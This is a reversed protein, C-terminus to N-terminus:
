KKLRLDDGAFELVDCGGLLRSAIKEGYKRFIDKDETLNSTFICPNNNINRTNIINYLVSQGYPTLYETGLDDLIFLDCGIIDNLIDQVNHRNREIQEFLSQSSAYMVVFGNKVCVDAIACSLHTKGLGSYGLMLLSKRNRHFKEAYKKCYNLIDTMQERPSIGNGAATDSYKDLSFEEFTNQPAPSLATLMNQRQKIIEQKLCTCIKGDVFGKDKCLACTYVPDLWNEDYGNDTLLQKRKEQVAVMHQKIEAAKQEQKALKAMTFDVGLSTMQYGLEEIEPLRSYVEEQRRLQITTNIQRRRALTDNANAVNETNIAM